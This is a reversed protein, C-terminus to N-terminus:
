QIPLIRKIGNPFILIHSLLLIIFESSRLSLLFLIILPQWYWCFEGVFLNYILHLFDPRSVPQFPNSVFRNCKIWRWLTWSFHLLFLLPIFPSALGQVIILLLYFCFVFGALIIASNIAKDWGKQVAFTLIEDVRDRCYDFLQHKLIGVIGFLFSWVALILIYTVLAPNLDGNAGVITAITVPLVYAYLSDTIPGLLGRTKLRLPPISYALFLGYELLLLVLILPSTPLWAWPLIGILLFLAIIGLRRFRNHGAVINYHGSRIDQNIDTLDNVVYGFTAIGVTALTFVVLRILVEWVPPLLPRTYVAYYFSGLMVMYHFEWWQNAKLLKLV